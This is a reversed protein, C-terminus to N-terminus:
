SPTPALSVSTAVNKNTKFVEDCLFPPDFDGRKRGEETKVGLSVCFVLSLERGGDM